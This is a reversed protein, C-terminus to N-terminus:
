DSSVLWKKEREARNLLRGSVERWRPIPGQILALGSVFDGSLCGGGSAYYNYFYPLHGQM